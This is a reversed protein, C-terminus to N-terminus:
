QKTKRYLKQLHAIAISVIFKVIFLLSLHVNLKDCAIIFSEL